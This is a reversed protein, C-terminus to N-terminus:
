TGPYASPIDIYGRRRAFRWRGDERVLRDRHRGCMSLRAQGDTDRHIVSWMVESTAEDGNLQVMPSSIIHYSNGVNGALTAAMLDRIAARGKAQGMPGLSIEGEESFLAAYEDFRGADLHAGYDVFLQQIELVDEVRKLREEVSTM